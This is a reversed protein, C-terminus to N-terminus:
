SPLRTKSPSGPLSRLEIIRAQKEDIEALRDLADNLALLNFDKVESSVIASELKVQKRDGGRKKRLRSRAHDVLIRRM